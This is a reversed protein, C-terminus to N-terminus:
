ENDGSRENGSAAVRRIPFAITITTGKGPESKATISGGHKIIVNKCYTLGLGFNKETNKTTFYPIFIHHLDVDNMGTGTDSIQLIYHSKDYFGIIDITGGGHMAEHANAIINSFVETMHTKDCIWFVNGGIDSHVTIGSQSMLSKPMADALLENLDCPEEYVSINQSHRKMRGIYNKLNSISRSMIALEEPSEESNYQSHLQEICMELKTTQNKIMHSTYDAGKGFLDMESDWDFNQASLKWGLFGNKFAMIFIAVISLALIVVNWQWAKFWQTLGLPHVVFITILAYLTAPMIVTALVLKHRKVTESKERRIGEFILMLMLVGLSLNYASYVIWFSDSELQYARFFLPPYFFSLVLAPVYITSKIVTLIKPRSHNLGYFYFGMIIAAPAAFSYSAWTLVSYIGIYVDERIM